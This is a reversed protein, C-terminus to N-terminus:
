KLVLKPTSALKDVDLSVNQCSMERLPVDLGCNKIILAIDKLHNYNKIISEVSHYDSFLKKEVLSVLELIRIDIARIKDPSISSYSLFENGYNISSRGTKIENSVLFDVCNPDFPDFEEEYPYLDKLGVVSLSVADIGNIHSEINSMTNLFQETYNKIKLRKLDNLTLIGHQCISAADSYSTNHHYKADNVDVNKMAIGQIIDKIYELIYKEELFVTKM